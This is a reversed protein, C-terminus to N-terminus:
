DGRSELAHVAADHDSGSAGALEQIARAPAGRMALHSCFTSLRHVGSTVIQARRAARRVHDGVMDQTLPVGDRQCIVRAVDVHRHERLAVALRVTMPVYRLRGGKPVTVHGRWESRQVCLQRKGLDVDSWELAIIEGCRLGAEGGSLVILYAQSDLAKATCVLQEYEDFDYFGMKPKSTSLLRITCPTQAIVQWDVAQKLLVSLVTLM